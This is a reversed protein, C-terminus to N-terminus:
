SQVLDKTLEKETKDIITDRNENAGELKYRKFRVKKGYRNKKVEIEYTFHHGQEKLEKIRTALQTIGLDIYAQYSTISGYDKIYQLVMQRQNM